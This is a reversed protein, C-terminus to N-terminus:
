ITDEKFLMCDKQCSRLPITKLHIRYKACQNVAFIIDPITAGSLYNIQDIVSCYHWYQKRGNEYEDKTLIVNATADHM